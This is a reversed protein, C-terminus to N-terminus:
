KLFATQKLTNALGYANGKFANYDAKFNSQAYDTYSVVHDLINEGCYAELRGITELFYKKRIEATDQLEPAVPILLFLNEMGEPAVSTDTKSPCCVYYLPKEPWQPNKYITKAHA